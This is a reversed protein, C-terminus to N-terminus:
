WSCPFASAPPESWAVAAAYPSGGSVTLLPYEGLGLHTALARQDHVWDLVTRDPKPDSLGFGPRDPAIVSVGLRRAADDATKWIM